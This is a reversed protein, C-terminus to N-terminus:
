VLTVRAWHSDRGGAFTCSAGPVSRVLDCKVEVTTHSAGQGRATMTRLVFITMGQSSGQAHANGMLGANLLHLVFFVGIFARQVHHVILRNLVYRAVVVDWELSEGGCESM